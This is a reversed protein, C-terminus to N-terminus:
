GSGISPFSALGLEPDPMGVRGSGGLRGPNEVVTLVPRWGDAVRGRQWIVSVSRLGLSATCRHSCM